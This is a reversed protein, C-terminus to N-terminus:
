FSETLFKVSFTLQWPELNCVKLKFPYVSLSFIVFMNLYFVGNNMTYPLCSFVMGYLKLQFHYFFSVGIGVTNMQVSLSALM